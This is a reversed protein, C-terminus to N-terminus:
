DRWNIKAKWRAARRAEHYAVYHIDNPIVTQLITSYPNGYERIFAAPEGDLEDFTVFITSTARIIFGKTIRTITM